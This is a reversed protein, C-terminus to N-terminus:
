ESIAKSNDTTDQQEYECLLTHQMLPIIEGTDSNYHAYLREKYEWVPHKIQSNESTKWYYRESLKPAAAQYPTEM